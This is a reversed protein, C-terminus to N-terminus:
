AVVNLSYKNDANLIDAGAEFDSVNEAFGEYYKEAQRENYQNNGAYNSNANSGDANAAGSQAYAIEFNATDFGNDLFAQRLDNQQSNFANYAETSTVVIKGTINKDSLDLTIKVNGLEQPNLILNIKGTNNDKLIINSAKVFDDSNNQIQNELMAQFTSGNAAASQGDLSLVNKEVQQNLNLTMDVTNHNTQKISTVFSNKKDSVQVAKKDTRMDTVTFTDAFSKKKRSDIKAIDKKNVPEVTKKETDFFDTVKNGAAKEFNFEFDKDNLKTKLEQINRASEVIAAIKPDTVVAAKESIKAADLTKVQVANEKVTDAVIKKASSNNKMVFLQELVSLTEVAKSNDATLIKSDKSDASEKVDKSEEKAVKEKSDENKEKLDSKQAVEETKNEDAQNKVAATQADSNESKTQNVQEKTTERANEKVPEKVEQSQVEKAILDMFSIGSDSTKFSTTETVTQPIVAPDFNVNLGQM